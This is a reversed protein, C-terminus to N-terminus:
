KLIFPFDITILVQVPKGDKMGPEFRWFRQANLVADDVGYKTDLSRIIRARNIDGTIGVVCEVLVTGEVRAAMAAFPYAPKEEHIVRPNTVGNGPRYMDEVGYDKDLAAGEKLIQQREGEPLPVGTAIIAKRLAESPKTEVYDTPIAFLAPDPEGLV